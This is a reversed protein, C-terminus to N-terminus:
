KPPKWNELQSRDLNAGFFDTEGVTAQSFDVSYLNAYSLNANTLFSKMLSGEMLNISKMNCQRLNAKNFQAMKATARYFSAGELDAEAFDSMCLSAEEFNAKRLLTERFNSRDLKAKQFNANDINCGDLFRTNAMEASSFDVHSLECDIFNSETLIAENFNAKNLTTNIFHSSPMYTKHFIANQMNLKLFIPNKFRAESFNTHELIADLLDIDELNCAKFSANSLNSKGLKANCLNANDFVTDILIAAGINADELNADSLNAGTLNAGTMIAGKLNTGKLNAHSFDIQELYAESLDLGSLDRGSLNICAYDGDVLSEGTELKKNFRHLVIDLPEDHPSSGPDIMHAGMRYTEKLKLSGDDIEQQLKSLEINMQPLQDEAQGQVRLQAISKEVEDISSQIEDFVDDLKARPLPPPQDIKNIATKIKERAEDTAPTNPLEDLSNKLQQKTEQKKLKALKDMEKSFDDLKSLDLEELNINKPNDHIGPAIQDILAMLNKTAPDDPAQHIDFDFKEMHPAPDVGASVLQEKLLLKQKDLAEMAEQQSNNAKNDMNKAMAGLNGETADMMRAFGCRMNNPILDKTTLAYKYGTDSDLRKRMSYEYQEVSRASDQHSEYAVILNPIDTADDTAINATGRFLLIAMKVAPFLFLTETKMELEQFLKEDHQQQEYFCRTKFAPLNGQVPIDEPHMNLIQIQENGNFFGELWQDKPAANFHNWNLDSAYNPALEKLWKGDYTGIKSAREQWTIDLPGFGAPAPHHSISTIIHKPDEINPMPLRQEGFVDIKDMGKGVPNPKYESGGFAHQYNIPMKIFPEPATPGLMNGWYRNGVISLSKNIPGVQVQAHGATIPQGQPAYYDGFVLVEGNPKPMGIDLFSDKGLEDSILRWLDQELLPVILNDKSIPFALMIAVSM